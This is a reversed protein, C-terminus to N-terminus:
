ASVARRHGSGAALQSDMIPRFGSSNADQAGSGQHMHECYLSIYFFEPLLYDNVVIKSM